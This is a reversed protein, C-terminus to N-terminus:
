PSMVSSDSSEFRTTIHCHKSPYCNFSFTLLDHHSRGIPAEHEIHNIMGDGNTLVLDILTSNQGPCHHTPNKTHQMLFSDMICSLFQQALNQGPATWNEWNISPLNFDGCILLHTYNATQSIKKLANLLKANNEESSNPSRYICGTLLVDNNNLRISIWCQEDFSEPIITNEPHIQVANLQDSTLIAMGRSGENLNSHVSYGPIQIESDEVKTESNKPLVETICIIDPKASFVRLELESRKNILSDANTYFCKLQHENRRETTDQSRTTDRQNQENVQDIQQNPRGRTGQHQVQDGSIV